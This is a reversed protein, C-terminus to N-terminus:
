TMAGVSARGNARDLARLREPIAFSVTIPAMRNIVVLAADDNAGVTTGVQM